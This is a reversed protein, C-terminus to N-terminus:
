TLAFARPLCALRGRALRRRSYDVRGLRQAVEFPDDLEGQSCGRRRGTSHDLANPVGNRHEPVVGQDAAPAVPQAAFEHDGPPTGPEHAQVPNSGARSMTKTSRIRCCRSAPNEPQACPRPLRVPFRSRDAIVRLDKVRLRVSELLRLGSGYQLCAILWCTGELQRLVRGVEAPTLVVPLRQPRKARVVNSFEGLPRGVVHRYLFVLANLAQNQTASAVEGEVALHTLFEAVEPEAMEAPHRKGHFVIFRKAWQVYAEETRISLHRVRIAERLQRLFPSAEEGKKM